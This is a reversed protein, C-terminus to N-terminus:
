LISEIASKITLDSENIQSEDALPWNTFRFRFVVQGNRGVIFKEYNGPIRAMAEGAKNQGNIAGNSTDAPSDDKRRTENGKLLSFIEHENDGNVDIKESIPFSIFPYNQKVFLSIEENSLPEMKFFQNCPFGVVSFGKDSYMEHLKQLEWLQRTTRAQSWLKSCQPSYGAKSAINVFLCVKESLPSLMDLDGNISSIKVDFVSAM